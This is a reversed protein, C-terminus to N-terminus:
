FLQQQQEHDKKRKKSVSAKKFESKESASM